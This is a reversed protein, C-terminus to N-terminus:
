PELRVSVSYKELVSKKLDEKRQREAMETNAKTNVCPIKLDNHEKNQSFYPFCYLVHM